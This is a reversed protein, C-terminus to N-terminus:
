YEIAGVRSVIRIKDKFRSEITIKGNWTAVASIICYETGAQDLVLEVSKNVAVISPFRVSAADGIHVIKLGDETKIVEFENSEGVVVNAFPVANISPFLYEPQDPCSSLDEAKRAGSEALAWSSFTSCLILCFFSSVIKALM